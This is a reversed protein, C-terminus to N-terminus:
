LSLINGLGDRLDTMEGVSGSVLECRAGGQEFIFVTGTTRLDIKRFGVRLGDFLPILTEVGFEFRRGVDSFFENLLNIRALARSIEERSIKRHLTLDLAQGDRDFSGSFRIIKETTRMPSVTSHHQHPTINYESISFALLGVTGENMNINKHLAIRRTTIPIGGPMTNM